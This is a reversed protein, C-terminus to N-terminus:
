EGVLVGQEVREDDLLGLPLVEGVPHQDRRLNVNPRVQQRSQYQQALKVTGFAQLQGRADLAMPSPPLGVEAGQEMASRVSILHCPMKLVLQHLAASDLALWPPKPVVVWLHKAVKAPLQPLILKVAQQSWYRLPTPGVASPLPM